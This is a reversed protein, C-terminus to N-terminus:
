TSPRTSTSRGARGPVARDLRGPVRGLIRLGGALAAAAASPPLSRRGSRSGAPAPRSARGLRVGRVARAVLARGAGAVARHGAHRGGCGHRDGRRPLRRHVRRRRDPRDLRARRRRDPRRRPRARLDLRRGPARDALGVVRVARHHGLPVLPSRSATSAHRRLRAGDALGARGVRLGDRPTGHAGADTLFWGVVGLALCVLLTARRRPRGASSRRRPGAPSRHRPDASSRGPAASTPGPLLSTM